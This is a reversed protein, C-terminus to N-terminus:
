ITILNGPLVLGSALCEFLRRMADGPGMPSVATVM